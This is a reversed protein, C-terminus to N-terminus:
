AHRAEKELTPSHAMGIRWYLEEYRDAQTTWTRSRAV